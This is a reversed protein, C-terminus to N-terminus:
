VSITVWDKPIIESWGESNMWRSPAIVIKNPNQNLWAGWWSFSSNAIINHKCLSMLQMDRFSYEGKNWDVFRVDADGIILAFQEMCWDIDDSFIVYIDPAVHKKIYFIAKQYYDITCIGSTNSIKLYDGRRIHIAISCRQQLEEGLLKNKSDTEFPPFTFVDIIDQRLSYFYRETQWAGILYEDSDSVFVREDYAKSKWEYKITRRKPLLRCLQWIRYNLFPYAIKTVERVTAEPIKVDFIRKLEYGNHIPYGNFARPDIRVKTGPKCRKELAVALAYQFMQNGLGGLINVIKMSM